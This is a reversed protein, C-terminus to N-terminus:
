FDSGFLRETQVYLGLAFADLAFVESSKFGPIPWLRLMLKRVEARSKLPPYALSELVAERPIKWVSVGADGCQAIVARYLLSRQNGNDIGEIAASQCEHETLVSRVFGATSAEARRSNSSLQLVRHGELHLGVFLAVAITRREVRVALLQARFSGNGSGPSLSQLGEHFVRGPNQGARGATLARQYACLVQHQSYRSALLVFHPAAAPEGLGRALRLAFYEDPSSPEFRSQLSSAFRGLINTM